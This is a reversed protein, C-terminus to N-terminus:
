QHIKECKNKMHLRQFTIHKKCKCCMEIPVLWIELAWYGCIALPQWIISYLRLNNIEFLLKKHYSNTHGMFVSFPFILFPSLHSWGQTWPLLFLYVRLSKSKAQSESDSIISQYSKKKKISSFLYIPPPKFTLMSIHWM